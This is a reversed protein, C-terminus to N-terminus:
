SFAPVSTEFHEQGLDTKNRVARVAVQWPLRGNM